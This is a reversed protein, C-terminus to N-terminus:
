CPYMYFVIEVIGCSLRISSLDCALRTAWPWVRQFLYLPLSGPFTSIKGGILILVLGSYGITIKKLIGTKDTTYTM